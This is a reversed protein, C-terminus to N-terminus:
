CPGTARAKQSPGDLKRDHAEIAEDLSDFGADREDPSASALLELYQKELFTTRKPDFPISYIDSSQVAYKNTRLNRFCRYRVLEGSSTRKWIDIAEFSEIKTDM